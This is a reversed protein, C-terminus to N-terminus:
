RCRRRNRRRCALSSRLARRLARLVVDEDDVGAVMMKAPVLGVAVFHAVHDHMGAGIGAKGFQHMSFFILHIPTSQPLASWGM